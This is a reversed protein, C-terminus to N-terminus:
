QLIQRQMQLEGLTDEKCDLYLEYHWSATDEAHGLFVQKGLRVGVGLFRNNKIHTLSQVFYPPKFFRNSRGFSVSSFDLYFIKNKM